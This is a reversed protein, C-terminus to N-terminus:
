LSSQASWNWHVSCLVLSLSRGRCNEM